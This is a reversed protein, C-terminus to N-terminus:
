DLSRRIFESNDAYRLAYKTGGTNEYVAAEYRGSGDSLPFVTWEDVPLNYNYTTEPGSLLVKIRSETPSLYRLMIYGESANSYDVVVDDCRLELEGSAEPELVFSFAPVPASCPLFM